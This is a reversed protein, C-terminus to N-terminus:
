ELDVYYFIIFIAYLYFKGLQFWKVYTHWKYDIIIQISEQEFLEIDECSKLTRSVEIKDEGQIEEMWIYNYQM